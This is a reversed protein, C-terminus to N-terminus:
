RLDVRRTVDRVHPGRHRCITASAEAESALSDAVLANEILRPAVLAAVLAVAGVLMAVAITLRSRVTLSM